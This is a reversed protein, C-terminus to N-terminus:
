NGKRPQHHTLGGQIMWHLLESTRKFNLKKMAARKHSSITKEKIGLVSAVGAHTKGQQLQHLVEQERPTLPAHLLTASTPPSKVSARQLSILVNEMLQLFLSVSQHRYLINSKNVNRYLHQLHADKREAIAIYLPKSNGICTPTCPSIFTGCRIAQFVIDTTEEIKNEFLPEMKHNTNKLHISLAMTLGKAYFKDDDIITISLTENKNLSKTKKM